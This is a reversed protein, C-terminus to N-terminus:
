IVEPKNYKKIQTRHSAITHSHHHIDKSDGHHLDNINSLKLHIQETLSHQM